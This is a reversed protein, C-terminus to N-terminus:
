VWTVSIASFGGDTIIPSASLRLPSEKCDPEFFLFSVFDLNRFLPKTGEELKSFHPKHKGLLSCHTRIEDGAGAEFRYNRALEEAGKLNSHEM